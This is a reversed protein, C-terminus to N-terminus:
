WDSCRAQELRYRDPTDLLGNRRDLTRNMEKFLPDITDRLRRQLRKAAVNPNSVKIAGVANTARNLRHRMRPFFENLGSKFVSVHTLEHEKISQFACSGPRFKRAIFVDFKDYGLKADVSTLRACYSGPGLKLAEISVRMQYKLETLTLGVPTWGKGFAGTQGKRRQKKRLQSRSRDNDYRIPGENRTLNITVDRSSPFACQDANASKSGSVLFVTAFVLGIISLIGLRTSISMCPSYSVKM